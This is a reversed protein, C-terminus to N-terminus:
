FLKLRRTMGEVYLTVPQAGTITALAMKGPPTNKESEPRTGCGSLLVAAGSLAVGVTLRMHMPSVPNPALSATVMGGVGFVVDLLRRHVDPLALYRRRYCADQDQPRLYCLVVAGAAPDIRLVVASFAL